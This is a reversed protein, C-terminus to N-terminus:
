PENEETLDLNFGKELKLINKFMVLLLYKNSKTGRGCDNAEACFFSLLHDVAMETAFGIFFSNEMVQSM